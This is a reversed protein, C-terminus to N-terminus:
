VSILYHVSIDALQNLQNTPTIAIVNYKGLGLSLSPVTQDEVWASMQRGTKGSATSAECQLQQVDLLFSHIGIKITKPKVRGPILGSDIM